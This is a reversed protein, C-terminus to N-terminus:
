GERGNDLALLVGFRGTRGHEARHSFWDHVDCVTCVGAVQVHAPQVGCQELTLQNAQWLDFHIHENYQPLLSKADLGFADTVADIVNEGVQYHHVGVSPGIGALIDQPRSGYATHMAEVAAAAVKKVTGQWGAHALCIAKRHPDVLLLPVCDGFRMFLTVDPRDTLIIDAKKHPAHLPRPHDSAVADASHVQWVDFLSEVPRDFCAFMRRRNEIVNERPDGNLGGVNLSAWPAPSVGGHRTFTAQRVGASELLDFSFYRLGDREIFAM